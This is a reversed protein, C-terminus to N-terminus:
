LPVDHLLHYVSILVKNEPLFEILLLYLLHLDHSYKVLYPLAWNM